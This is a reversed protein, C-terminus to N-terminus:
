VPWCLKLRSRPTPPLRPVALATPRKISQLTTNRDIDGEKAMEGRDRGPFGRATRRSGRALWQVPSSKAPRLLAAHM